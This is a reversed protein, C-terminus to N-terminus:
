ELLWNIIPVFKIRKGDIVEEKELNDTIIIGDKLKFENLASLLGKVEREKTKNDTLDYTVQIAEIIREAKKILFDCEQNKLNKYYYIEKNRRKLEVFVLNEYLQGKNETFKFAIQNLLGTDICYIKKNYSEQRKLSYDFKNLEFLTYTNTLYTIYKKITNKSKIDVQNKKISSYNFEKSCNSILYQAIKKFTDQEKIKYRNFIDRYIVDLYINELFSTNNNVVVEPFGGKELYKKFQNQINTKNITLRTDLDFSNYKLYEKFSFPFLEIDTHRGTLYTSIEKSLLDSNSGTIIFKQKKTEYIRAVFKDWGKKGQVEDFFFIPRDGYNKQFIEYLKQFDNIEFDILREDLFNLYYYNNKYHKQMIQLLLTSKGVRRHGTIVINTKNILKSIDELKDRTFGPDQQTITKNQNIVINELIKLDM